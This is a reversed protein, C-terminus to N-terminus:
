GPRGVGRMDPLAPRIKVCVEELWDVQWGKRSCALVHNFDHVGNDEYPGHYM